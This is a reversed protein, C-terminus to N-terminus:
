AWVARRSNTAQQIKLMVVNAIDDASQGATGYVAM